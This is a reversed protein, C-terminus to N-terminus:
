QVTITVQNNPTLVQRLYLNGTIPGGLYLPLKNVEIWNIDDPSYAEPLASFPFTPHTHWAAVGDTNVDVTGASGDLSYKGGRFTYGYGYAGSTGSCFAHIEGGYERVPWDSQQWAQNVADAAAKNIGLDSNAVVPDNDYFLLLGATSPVDRCPECGPFKGSASYCTAGQPLAGLDFSATIVGQYVPVNTKYGNVTPVVDVGLNGLTYTSLKLSFHVYKGTMKIKGTRCIKSNNVHSITNGGEITLGDQSAYDTGVNFDGYAVRSQEVGNTEYESALESCYTVTIYKVETLGANPNEIRVLDLWEAKANTYAAANYRRVASTVTGNTISANASADAEIDLKYELLTGANYVKGDKSSTSAGDSARESLRKTPYDSIATRHTKCNVGQDGFTKAYVDIWAGFRAPYLPNTQIVQGPGTEYICESNAINAFLVGSLILAITLLLSKM